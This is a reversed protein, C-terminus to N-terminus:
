LCSRSAAILSRLVALRRRRAAGSARLSAGLRAGFRLLDADEAHAADARLAHGVGLAVDRVERVDLFDVDGLQLPQASM